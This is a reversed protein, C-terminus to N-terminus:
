STIELMMVVAAAGDAYYRPRLDIDAFGRVRYFARAPDNDERVELLVREAGAASATALVTSLLASALGTRRLGPEVSIRQLEAIEAVVSAVAHGVLRGQHEAVWYHVTPVRGGVGEAVLGAPWGDPGLHEAELRTIGEADAAVAPRIRM